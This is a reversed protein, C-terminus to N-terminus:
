ECGALAATDTIAPSSRGLPNDYVAEEGSVLDEVRLTYEVDTGASGFVWYHGNLACGDLVKVLLEWNDPRFFSFVASSDDGAVVPVGRGTRGEYDRWSVTVRFRGDILQGLRQAPVLTASQAWFEAGADGLERQVLLRYLGTDLDPLPFRHSEVVPDGCSRTTPELEFRAFLDRGHAWASRARLQWSPCGDTGEGPPIETDVVLDHVFREPDAELRLDLIRPEGSAVVRLSATAYTEVRQPDDLRPVRVEVEYRGAPLGDVAAELAVEVPRDDPPLCTPETRALEVILAPSQGAVTV